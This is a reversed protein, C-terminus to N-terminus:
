HSIIRELFSIQEGFNLRGKPMNAIVRKKFRNPKEHSSLNNYGSYDEIRRISQFEPELSVMEQINQNDLTKRRRNEWLNSSIYSDNRSHFASNVKQANQKARLMTHNIQSFSQNATSRLVSQSRGARAEIRIPRNPDSVGISKKEMNVNHPTLSNMPNHYFNRGSTVM